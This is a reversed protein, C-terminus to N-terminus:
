ISQRKRERLLAQMDSNKVPILNKLFHILSILFYLTWVSSGAARWIFWVALTVCLSMIPGGLFAIGNRKQRHFTCYSQPKPHQLLFVSGPRVGFFVVYLGTVPNKNIRCGILHGCEHLVSLLLIYGPLGAVAVPISDNSVAVIIAGLSAAFFALM